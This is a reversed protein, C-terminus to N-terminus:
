ISTFQLDSFKFLRCYFSGANDLPNAHEYVWKDLQEPSMWVKNEVLKSIADNRSHILNEQKKYFNPFNDKMENLYKEAEGWENQMVSISLYINSIHYRYFSDDNNRLIKNKLIDLMVYSSDYDGSMVYLNILNIYLIANSERSSDSIKSKFEAIADKIVAKDFTQMNHYKQLFTALILNNYIKEQSPFQILPYEEVLDLCKQLCLIANDYEGVVLLSGSHNCLALYYQLHDKRKEFYAVSDATYRKTLAAPNFVCAKRSIIKGMYEFLKNHYNKNIFSLLEKVISNSRDYDDLKNSYTSFLTFACKCWQEKEQEKLDGLIDQLEMALQRVNETNMDRMLAVVLKMRKIESMLLMPGALTAQNLENSAEDYKEQFYLEYANKLYLFNNYQVQIEYRNGCSEVKEKILKEIKRTEADETSGEINRCYALAFLGIIEFIYENKRDGISLYYARGAYNEPEHEQLYKAYEIEFKFNNGSEKLRKYFLEQIFVNSFIFYNSEKLIDNECSEKLLNDIDTRNKLLYKIQEVKFDGNLISSAQLVDSIGSKKEGFRDLRYELMKMVDILSTDTSLKGQKSYYFGEIFLKISDLHGGTISMIIDLDKEKIKLKSYGLLYLMERLEERRMQDFKVEMGESYLTTPDVYESAHKENDDTVLLVKLSKNGLLNQQHNRLTMLFNRSSLDWYQLSDAIILINSSSNKRLVDVVFHAKPDLKPKKQFVGAVGVNFLESLRFGFSLNFGSFEYEPRNMGEALTITAYAEVPNKKGEIYYVAWDEFESAVLKAYEKVLTTKGGGAPGHLHIITSNNEFGQKIKGLATTQRRSLLM